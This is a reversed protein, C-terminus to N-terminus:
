ITGTTQTSEGPTATKKTGVRVIEVKPKYNSFFIDRYLLNGDKKYVYRVVRYKRGNIGESEVVKKDEPLSGDKVIEITYPRVDYPGITEFKVERGEKTGYFSITIRSNTAYAKILIWSKYDNRFKLDYGGYSVTADRGPPYHSIFFSHNHREVIKMGAFFATNFLTTGVQCAGGGATDVLRGNIITPALKFGREITRPGIRENFSFIEGPAILQGDLLRALLKINAVRSTQNPNYDTSYVSVPEVIGFDKAEEYTIEAEVEKFVPEIRATRNVFLERSAKEATKTVDVSLGPRDPRIVVKGSVVDFSANVPKQEIKKFFSQLEEALKGPDILFTLSDNVTGSRIIRKLREGKLTEAKGNSFIVLEKELYIPLQYLVLNKVDELIVGPQCSVSKLPVPNGKLLAARASKVIEDRTFCLGAREKEYVAEGSEDFSVAADVPPKGFKKNLLSSFDKLRREDIQFSPQIILKGYFGKLFNLYRTLHNESKLNKRYIGLTKEKDIKVGVSDASYSVNKDGILFNLRSSNREDILLALREEADEFSMLGLRIGNFYTQPPNISSIMFVLPLSVAAFIVAVVAIVVKKFSPLRKALRM